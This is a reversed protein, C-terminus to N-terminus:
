EGKAKSSSGAGDLPAPGPSLSCLFESFPEEGYLVGHGAWVFGGCRAASPGPRDPGLFLMEERRGDRFVLVLRNGRQRLANECAPRSLTPLWSEVRALFTPDDTWVWQGQGASAPAASAGWCNFEIGIRALQGRLRSWAAWDGWCLFDIGGGLALAFLVVLSVVAMFQKM